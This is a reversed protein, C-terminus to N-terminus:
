ITGFLGSNYQTASTKTQNTAIKNSVIEVKRHWKVQNIFFIAYLFNAYLFINRTSHMKRCEEFIVQCDFMISLRQVFIPSVKLKSIDEQTKLKEFHDLFFGLIYQTASTKTRNTAIKNSAIVRRRRHWKVQNIFFNAYKKRTSNLADKQVKLLDHLNCVDISLSYVNGCIGILLM